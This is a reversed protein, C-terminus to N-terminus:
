STPGGCARKWASKLNEICCKVCARTTRTGQARDLRSKELPIQPLHMGFFHLSLAEGRDVRVAELSHISILLQQATDPSIPPSSAWGVWTLEWRM